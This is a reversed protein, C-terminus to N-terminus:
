FKFVLKIIFFYLKFFLSKTMIASKQSNKLVAILENVKFNNALMKKFVNRFARKEAVLMQHAPLAAINLPLMYSWKAHVKLIERLWKEDFKGESFHEILVEFTVGVKYLQNIGLSFDLDYGHFGKLLEQDFQYTAFAEKTCCFWVGDICGVQALKLNSPNSYALSEKRDDYKFHQIIQFYQIDPAEIDYCHWGSPALSKYQSGAVGILGYDPNQEFISVVHQGWNTTEIKIDEHMFCLIGFKAQKAGINYVECIGREANHNNIAIIEHAIGITDKINITIADLYAKNASSIIISIM